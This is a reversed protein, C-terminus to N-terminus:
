GLMKGAVGAHWSPCAVQLLDLVSVDGSADGLALLGARGALALATVSAEHLSARLVGQFGAPQQTTHQDAGPRRLLTHM